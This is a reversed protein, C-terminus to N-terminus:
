AVESCQSLIERAKLLARRARALERQTRAVAEPDEATGGALQAFSLDDLAELVGDLSSVLPTLDLASV